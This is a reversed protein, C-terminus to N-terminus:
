SYVKFSIIVDGQLPQLSGKSNRTQNGEKLSILSTDQFKIDFEYGKYQSELGVDWSEEVIGKATNELEQCAGKGNLCISGKKCENVLEQFTQYNYDYNISCETTYPLITQIFSEVEKSQIDQPKERVLFGFFVLIIVAVIIIILGFGVM